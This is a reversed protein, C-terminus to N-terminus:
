KLHLCVIRQKCYFVIKFCISSVEEQKKDDAKTASAAKKNVSSDAFIDDDEAATKSQKVTCFCFYLVTM